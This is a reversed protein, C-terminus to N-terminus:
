ADALYCARCVEGNRSKEKKCKVCFYRQAPKKNPIKRGGMRGPRHDRIHDARSMAGLNGCAWNPCRGSQDSCVRNNRKRHDKHHIIYKAHDLIVGPHAQWIVIHAYQSGILDYDSNLRVRRVGTYRKSPKLYLHPKATM